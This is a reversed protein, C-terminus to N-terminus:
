FSQWRFIMWEINLTPMFCLSAANPAISFYSGDFWDELLLLINIFGFIKQMIYFLYKM